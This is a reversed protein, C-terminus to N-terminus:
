FWRCLRSNNGAQRTVANAPTAETRQPLAIELIPVPRWNIKSGWNAAWKTKLCPSSWIAAAPRLVRDFYFGCAGPSSGPLRERLVHCFRLQGIRSSRRLGGAFISKGSAYLPRVRAPPSIICLSSQPGNRTMGLQAPRDHRSNSTPKSGFAVQNNRVHSIDCLAL